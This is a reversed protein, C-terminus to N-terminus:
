ALAADLEELVFRPSVLRLILPHNPPQEIRVGFVMGARSGGARRPSACLCPPGPLPRDTTM